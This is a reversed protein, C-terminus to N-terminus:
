GTSRQETRDDEKDDRTLSIQRPDDTVELDLTDRDTINVGLDCRDDSRVKRRVSPGPACASLWRSRSAGCDSRPEASGAPPSNLFNISSGGTRLFSNSCSSMMAVLLKMWPALPPGIFILCDRLSAISSPRM